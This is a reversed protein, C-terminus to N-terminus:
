LMEPLLGVHKIPVLVLIDEKIVVEQTNARGKGAVNVKVVLVRVMDVVCVGRMRTMSRVQRVDLVVVIYLHRRRHLHLHACQHVVRDVHKKKLHMMGIM